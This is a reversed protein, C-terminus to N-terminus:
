NEITVSVPDDTLAADEDEYDDDFEADSVWAGGAQKRGIPRRRKKGPVSPPDKEDEDDSIEEMLWKFSQRDQELITRQRAKSKNLQELEAKLAKIENAQQVCTL